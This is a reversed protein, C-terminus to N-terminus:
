DCRIYEFPAGYGEHMILTITQGFCKNRDDNVRVWKHRVHKLKKKQQGCLFINQLIHTFLCNMIAM